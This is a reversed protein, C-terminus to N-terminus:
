KIKTIDLKLHKPKQTRLINPPLKNFSFGLFLSSYPTLVANKRKEAQCIGQIGDHVMKDLHATNYCGEIAGLLYIPSTRKIIFPCNVYLSPGSDLSSYIVTQPM